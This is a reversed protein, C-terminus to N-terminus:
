FPLDDGLFESNDPRETYFIIQNFRIRQSDNLFNIIELKLTEFNKLNDSDLTVRFGNLESLKSKLFQIKETNNMCYARQKKKNHSPHKNNINM